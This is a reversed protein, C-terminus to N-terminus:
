KILDTFFKYTEAIAIFHAISDAALRCMLTQDSDAPKQRYRFQGYIAAGCWALVARSYTWEPRKFPYQRRRNAEPIGYMYSYTAETFDKYIFCQLYMIGGGILSYLTSGVVIKLKDSTTVSESPHSNDRTSCILCKIFVPGTYILFSSMTIISFCLFAASEFSITKTSQGNFLKLLENAESASTTPDNIRSAFLQGRDEPKTIEFIDKYRVGYFMNATSLKGQFQNTVVIKFIEKAIDMIPKDSLSLKEGQYGIKRLEDNIWPECQTYSVNRLDSSTWLLLIRRDQPELYEGIHWLVNTGLGDINTHFKCHNNTSLIM